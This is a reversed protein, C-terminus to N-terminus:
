FYKKIKNKLDKLRRDIFTEYKNNIIEKEIDFCYIEKEEYNDKKKKKSFLIVKNKFITIKGYSELNDNRLHIVIDNEEQNVIYVSNITNNYFAERILYNLIKLKTYYNAKETIDYKRKKNKFIKLYKECNGFVTKVKTKNCISQFLEKSKKRGKSKSHFEFISEEGGIINLLISIKKNKYFRINVKKLKNDYATYYIAPHSNRRYFRIYKINNKYTYREKIIFSIYDTAEKLNVDNTM